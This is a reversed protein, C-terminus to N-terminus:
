PSWRSRCTSVCEKGVRREESRIYRVPDIPEHTPGATILIRRGFLARHNAPAFDPQGTLPVVAPADALAKDIAAKIAEPEPLRGPGYEGCAMEGEDPEM